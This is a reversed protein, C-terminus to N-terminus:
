KKIVFDDKGNRKLGDEFLHSMLAPPKWIVGFEPAHGWALYTCPGIEEQVINLCNPIHKESTTVNLVVLPCNLSYHKKYLKNFNKYQKVSRRVSKRHPTKPDNAETNRDAEVIFALYSGGYDIAFISDPSLIKTYNRGDWTFPVDLSIPNGKLIEHAPIYRYGHRDCMIHMTATISSTMFQHVWQGTPRFADVWAGNDVLFQKGRDTLDYIYHNYNCNMTQMQQYPRHLYGGKWMRYLADKAGDYSRHTPRTYEFLYLSSQPGHLNIFRLWEVMRKNPKFHKDLKEPYQKYFPRGYQTM